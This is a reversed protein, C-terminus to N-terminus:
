VAYFTDTNPTIKTRMKGCESQSRLSVGYIEANLKFAPFHPGSYSWIRDNKEHFYSFLVHNLNKKMKRFNKMKVNKLKYLYHWIKYLSM